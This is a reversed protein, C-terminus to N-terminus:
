FLDTGAQTYLNITLVCSTLAWAIVRMSRLASRIEDSVGRGELGM